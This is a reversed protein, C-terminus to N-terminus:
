SEAFRLKTLNLALFLTSQYLIRFQKPNTVDAAADHPSLGTLTFEAYAANMTGAAVNVSVSFDNPAGSYNRRWYNVNGGLNSVPRNNFFVSYNTLDPAAGNIIRVIIKGAGDLVDMALFSPSAQTDLYSWWEGFSVTGGMSWDGTKNRPLDKVLSATTNATPLSASVFLDPSQRPPRLQNVVSTGFGVHTHYGDNYGGGQDRTPDRTWGGAGNPIGATDYPLGSLLDYPDPTPAVYSASNWSVPVDSVKISQINSVSFRHFGGHYWEDSNYLYYTDDVRGVGFGIANGAAGALGKFAASTNSGRANWYAANNSYTAYIPEVAGFQGLALGSQHWHTWM